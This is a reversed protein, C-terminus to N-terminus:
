SRNKIKRQIPIFALYKLDHCAIISCRFKRYFSIMPTHIGYKLRIPQTAIGGIIISFRFNDPDSTKVKIETIDPTDESRTFALEVREFVSNHEKIVSSDPVNDIMTVDLYNKSLNSEESALVYIELYYLFDLDFSITRTFEPETRM